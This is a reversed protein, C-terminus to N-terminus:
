KLNKSNGYVVKIPAKKYVYNCLSLEWKQLEPTSLVLEFGLKKYHDRVIVNRETPKYYGILKKVGEVEAKEVLENLIALELRRGLVRCSMLWTDIEWAITDKKCIIVAIMGNDGLADTLRVQMTFFNQNLEFNLVDNESYRNTTLNFQNSKSILQTIRNRGNSDFPMFSACMDLATLYTDIDSSQELILTRKANEEYFKARRSDEESFTVVEFYGAAILTSVYLAPDEPLEPVAVESLESRVQMREAPNDDLFVISGLGLSLEEAILRINSAKDTWNAHFAAIHEEKLLMDPHSKFPERAVIEENKSSVALVVGRERFSLAMKQVGLHAEATADGEGIKIGDIGDDGIVGGWLTNDLDLILCRRSKGVRAALLRCIYECYIPLYNQSFPIKGINWLRPDHWNSLGVKAALGAIDLIYCDRENLEDLNINLRTIIWSLTGVLRREYSGFYEDAPPPFNQIIIKADTKSRLSRIITIIYEFCAQVCESALVENGPCAKIPLGRYDIAVLIYDLPNRTFESEELSFAEQAVHNFQSEILNVSIGHRLASGVLAPVMFSTTANSMVGISMAILPNLKDQSFKCALIKKYLRRLQSEDLSFKALSSIERATSAVELRSSFDEPAKPLWGLQEYLNGLIL